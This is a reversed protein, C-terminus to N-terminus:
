LWGLHTHKFGDEYKLGFGFLRDFASHGLMVIGALEIVQVGVIVGVMVLITALGLHHTLNYTWAGLKSNIIYGIMGIDPVLFLVPYLWWSLELQSFLWVSLIVLSALELKLLWKM